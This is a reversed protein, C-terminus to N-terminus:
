GAAAALQGRANGAHHIGRVLRHEEALAPAERCCEMARAPEGIFSYYRGLSALVESGLVPNPSQCPKVSM